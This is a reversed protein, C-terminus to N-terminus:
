SDKIQPFEILRKKLKDRFTSLSLGLLEAAKSQNGSTKKLAEIFLNRELCDIIDRYQQNQKTFCVTCKKVTNECFDFGKIETPLDEYRVKSDVLLSLRQAVNRLERVNGPWEYSVLVDIIDNSLEINKYPAFKKLFHKVLLPIDDIRERLPPIFVPVVNLRYYLDSRFHKTKILQKLDIKTSSIIRVDTNIAKTGGVRMMEGSEIVRLLKAQIGMPVDDIDDLFLSGKYAIEFLGKKFDHANTFAGKEHGFLENAILDPPLATLGIKVLAKNSRNSLLHIYDAFIEKGSGTEGILIVPYDSEAVKKLTGLIERM